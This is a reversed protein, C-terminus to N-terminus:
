GRKVSAEMREYELGRILWEVPADELQWPAIHWRQALLDLAYNFPIETLVGSDGLAARTFAKKLALSDSPLRSGGHRRRDM